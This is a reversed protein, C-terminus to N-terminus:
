RDREFDFRLLSESEVAEGNKRAPQFRWLRAAEIAHPALLKQTATLSGESAAGVVRGAADIAVRVVVSTSEPLSSHLDDPVSPRVKRVPVAAEYRVTREASGPTISSGAPPGSFAAPTPFAPAPPTASSIEPALPLPGPAPATRPTLPGRYRRLAKSPTQRTTRTKRGPSRERKSIPVQTETLPVQAVAEKVGTAMAVTEGTFHTGDRYVELRVEVWGSEPYYVTSGATLQRRDLPIQLQRAGDRVTLIGSFGQAVAPSAPNWQVKVASGTSHLELHVGSNAETLNPRYPLVPVPRSQWISHGFFLGCALGVALGVWALRNRRARASVTAAAGAHNQPQAELAQAAALEGPLEVLPPETLPQEILSFSLLFTWEGNVARYLRAAEVGAPSAPVLVLVAESLNLLSAINRDVDSPRIEGSTQSRFHGVISAESAQTRAAYHKILLLDSPSPQFAPSSRYEMPLPCIADLRIQSEKGGGAGNQSAGSFGTLLGGIELGRRPFARVGDRVMRDLAAMADVNARM